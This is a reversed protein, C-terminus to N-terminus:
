NPRKAIVAFELWGITSDAKFVGALFPRTTRVIEDPLVKTAILRIDSFGAAQLFAQYQYPRLRNPIGNFHALRWFLRSFRYINLPDRQRLFRTHTQLDIVACFIGGPKLLDFSSKIISSVRDFHEFAANSLIFDFSKSHLKALNFQPDVLYKIPKRTASASRQWASQLASQKSQAFSSILRQYFHHDKIKALPFKDFATYSNAGFSILAIGQGLDAGPGLELIDAASFKLNQDYRRILDRWHSVVALDYTIAQNYDSAPFARPRRYSLLFYRIKNLFLIITGLFFYFFNRIRTM